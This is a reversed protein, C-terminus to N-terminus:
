CGVYPFGQKAFFCVSCISTEQFLPVGLKDMKLPIEVFLVSIKPYVGM